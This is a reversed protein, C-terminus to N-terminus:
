FDIEGDGDIDAKKIAAQIESNTATTNFCRVIEILEEASLKGSKDTDILNFIQRLDAAIDLDKRSAMWEIFSDRTM